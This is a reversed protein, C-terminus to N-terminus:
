ISSSCKCSCGSIDNMHQLDTFGDNDTLLICEENDYSSVSPLQQPQPPHPLHMNEGLSPVKSFYLTLISSMAPKVNRLHSSSEVHMKWNAEGGSRTRQM